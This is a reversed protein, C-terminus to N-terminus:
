LGTHDPRTTIFVNEKNLNLHLPPDHLPGPPKPLGAVAVATTTKSGELALAPLATLQVGLKSNTAAVTSPGILRRPDRTHYYNNNLKHSVGGPLNPPPAEKGVNQQGEFRNNILPDRGQLAKRIMRLFPSVDYLHKKRYLM